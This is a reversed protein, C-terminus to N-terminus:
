EDGASKDLAKVFAGGKSSRRQTTEIIHKEIRARDKWKMALKAADMGNEAIVDRLEEIDLASLAEALADEGKEYLEFPNIKAPTRRNSKKKKTEASEGVLIDSMKKAFIENSSIEDSICSSAKKWLALVKKTDM